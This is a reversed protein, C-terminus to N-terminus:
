LCDVGHAAKYNYNTQQQDEAISQLCGESIHLDILNTVFEGPCHYQQLIFRNYQVRERCFWLTSLLLQVGCILYVVRLM